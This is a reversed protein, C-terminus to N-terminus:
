PMRDVAASRGKNRSFVASSYKASYLFPKVTKAFIQGFLAVRIEMNPIPYYDNYLFIIVLALKNESAYKRSPLFFLTAHCARGELSLFSATHEQVAQM